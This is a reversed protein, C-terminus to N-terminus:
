SRRYTTFGPPSPLDDDPSASTKFPNSSAPQHQHPLIPPLNSHTPRDVRRMAGMSDPVAGTDSLTVGRAFGAKLELGNSGGSGGLVTSHSSSQQDEDPHSSQFLHSFEHNPSVREEDEFPSHGSTENTARFAPLIPERADFDTMRGTYSDQSTQRLPM